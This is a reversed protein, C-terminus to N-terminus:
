TDKTGLLTSQAKCKIETKSIETWAWAHLKASEEFRPTWKDM